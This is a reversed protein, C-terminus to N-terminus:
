NTALVHLKNDVANTKKKAHNGDIHMGVTTLVYDFFSFVILFISVFRLAEAVNFQM